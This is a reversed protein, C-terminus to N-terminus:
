ADETKKRLEEILILVEQLGRLFGVSGLYKEHDMGKRLGAMEREDIKHIADILQPIIDHEALHIAM